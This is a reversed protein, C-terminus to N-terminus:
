YVEKRSLWDKEAKQEEQMLSVDVVQHLCEKLFDM